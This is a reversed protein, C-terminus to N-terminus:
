DTNRELGLTNCSGDGGVVAPADGDAMDDSNRVPSYTPGDCFSDDASKSTLSKVHGDMFAMVTVGGQPHMYNTPDPAKTGQKSWSNQYDHFMQTESPRAFFGEPLPFPPNQANNAAMTCAGDGKGDGTLCASGYPVVLKDYTGTGGNSNKDGVDYYHYPWVGSYGTAYPAISFSDLNFKYSTGFVQWIASGAPAQFAGAAPYSSAKANGAYAGKSGGYTAFGNDDPCQFVQWSKTYPQIESPIGFAQTAMNGASDKANSNGVLTTGIGDATQVCLPMYGDNDTYYQMVGLMFQHLNSQCTSLRAKERAMGFAPFLIAALMAIIAIVVLLEILTFAKKQPQTPIQNRM